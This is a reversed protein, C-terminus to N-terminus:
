LHSQHFNWASTAERCQSCSPLPEPLSQMLLPSHLGPAGQIHILPHSWVSPFTRGLLLESRSRGLSRMSPAACCWSSSLPPKPPPETCLSRHPGSCSELLESRPACPELSVAWSGTSVGPCASALLACSLLSVGAAPSGWTTCILPGQGLLM